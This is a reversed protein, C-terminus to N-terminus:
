DAALMYRAGAAADAAHCSFYRPAPADAAAALTACLPPMLMMTDDAFADAAYSLRPSLMLAAADAYHFAADIAPM